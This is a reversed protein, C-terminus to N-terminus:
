TIFTTKNKKFIKKALKTPTYDRKRIPINPTNPKTLVEKDLETTFITTNNPKRKSVTPVPTSTRKSLIKKLIVPIQSSNNSFCESFRKGYETKALEPRNAVKLNRLPTFSNRDKFVEVKQLQKVRPVVWSKFTRYQQEIVKLSEPHSIKKFFNKDSIWLLKGTSSVCKCSFVRKLIKDFNEEFGFIEGAQKTIIQLEKVRYSDKKILKTNASEQSNKNDITYGKSTNIVFKQTFKFEGEKIIFVANPWDGENYVYAGKFYQSEKFYFSLNYLSVKTWFKFIELSRLYEMKENIQKIQNGEIELYDKRDLAILYVCNVAKATYYRPKENFIVMEGFSEGTSITTIETEKEPTLGKFNKARISLIEVNKRIANHIEEDGPEDAEVYKKSFIRVVGKVIFFIQFSQDDTNFIVDEPSYVKLTMKRSLQLVMENSGQREIIEQFFRFIYLHRLLQELDETKRQHSPTELLLVFNNINSLRREVAM